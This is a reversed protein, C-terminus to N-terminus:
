IYIYGISSAFRSSFLRKRLKKYFVAKDQQNSMKEMITAHRSNHCYYHVKRIQGKRTDLEVLQRVIDHSSIDIVRSIRRDVLLRYIYWFNKALTVNNSSLDFTSITQTSLM